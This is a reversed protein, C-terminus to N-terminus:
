LIAATLSVAVLQLHGLPLRALAAGRRRPPPGSTRGLFTAAAEAFSRHDLDALANLRAMTRDDIRAVLRRQLADWTRPYREALERRALLVAAYDPFFHRDDVLLVLVLRALQGAPQFVAIVGVGGGALARSPLAPGRARVGAWGGGAGGGRGG